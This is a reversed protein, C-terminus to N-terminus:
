TNDENYVRNYYEVAKLTTHELHASLSSKGIVCNYKLRIYLSDDDSLEPLVITYIDSDGNIAHPNSISGSEVMTSIIVEKFETMFRDIQRNIALNENNVSQPIM